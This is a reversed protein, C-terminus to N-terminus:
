VWQARLTLSHPGDPGKKEHVYMKTCFLGALKGVWGTLARRYFPSECLPFEVLDLRAEKPGLKYVAIGGGDDARMWYRQVHPFLSWPTAGAQTALKIATGIILQGIREVTRQGMELQQEATLTLADCAAYHASAAELPVWEAAVTDFLHAHHRSPVHRAYTDFVGVSKINSVSAILITSRM